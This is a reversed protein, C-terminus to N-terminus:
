DSAPFDRAFLRAINRVSPLQRVLLLLHFEGPLTTGNDQFGIKVRRAAAPLQGCSPWAGSALPGSVCIM